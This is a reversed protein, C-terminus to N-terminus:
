SALLQAAPEFEQRFYAVTRRIGEARSIKPTWGLLNRARTIDPCRRKPDDQPLPCFAISSESNVWKIVERAIQLVTIEEPNGLNFVRGDCGVEATPQWHMVQVIGEILDDVYCFSRTQSGDGFVTLPENHLAQKIFAPIVRGDDSRMRPGYTNFIRVIRVDIQHQRYYAMTEAEAFRKSEDYCSRPGLTSVHGWYGEHQPSIEPDGYVESTSALLFRAGTAKAMGLLNYTGLSGVKLTHIPDRQYDKPSALSAFHLVYDLKVQARLPQSINHCVFAFRPDSFLSAINENRGTKLNDVCIVSHGEALLRQCLHSGLFGAGGSILIRM